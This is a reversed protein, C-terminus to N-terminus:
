GSISARSSDQLLQKQQGIEEWLRELEEQLESRRLRQAEASSELGELESRRSRLGGLARGSGLVSPSRHHFEM